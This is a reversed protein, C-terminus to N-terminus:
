IVPSLVSKEIFPRLVVPSEHEFLAMPGRGLDRM